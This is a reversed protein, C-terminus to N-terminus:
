GAEEHWVSEPYNLGAAELANWWETAGMGASKAEEVTAPICAARRLPIMRERESKLRAFLHEQAEKARVDMPGVVQRSVGEAAPLASPVPPCRVAIEQPRPLNESTRLYDMLARKVDERKYPELVALWASRVSNGSLGPHGKFYFELLEFLDSVDKMTM